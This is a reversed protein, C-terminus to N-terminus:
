RWPGTIDLLVRYAINERIACIMLDRLGGNVQVDPIVVGDNSTTSLNHAPGYLGPMDGRYNAGEVCQVPFAILENGIPSPYAMGSYGMEAAVLRNSYRAFSVASGLQNYSRAFQSYTPNALLALGYEYNNPDTAVIGCRYADPINPIMDGFWCSTIYYNSQGAGKNVFLYFCHGDSFLRWGRASTNAADSKYWRGTGGGNFAGGGTDVDSMTEYGSVAAYTTTSDEVWLYMRTSQIDDARYVAKNTGSFAKSFGAPARKASITGTATQDTIGSTTFTFTTTTASQIRFDGNLGSPTAGEIRIVAGTSGVLPFNHGTSVTATAINSAVTLTNVVVSGFGNVLCADLVSILTGATGSLTPAGSM